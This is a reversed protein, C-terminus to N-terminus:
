LTCRKIPDSQALLMFTIDNVSHDLQGVNKTCQLCLQVLLIHNCYAASEIIWSGILRRAGQRVEPTSEMQSIVELTEEKM